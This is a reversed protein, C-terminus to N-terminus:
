YSEKKPDFYPRFELVLIRMINVIVGDSFAELRNRPMQFARINIVISPWGSDQVGTM